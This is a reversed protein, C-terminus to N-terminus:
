DPALSLRERVEPLAIFEHWFAKSYRRASDLNLHSGDATSLGEVEPFVYPVGLRRSFYPLHDPSYRGYPVISLVLLSDRQALENKLEEALPLFREHNQQGEGMKIKYTGDWELVTNWWGTRSSRYHIYGPEFRHRLFGIKPVVRHLRFQVNWWLVAELRNKVADWRSMRIAQSGVASYNGSFIHAGGVAVVVKPRLDHRRILDLAFIVGESHGMGLSFLSIGLKRARPLLFEGRLGLPMRSNGIFLVDANRANAISEGLDHYLISQSLEAQRGHVFFYESGAPIEFRPMYQSAPLKGAKLPLQPVLWASVTAAAIALMACIILKRVPNGAFRSRM